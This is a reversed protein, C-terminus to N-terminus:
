GNKCIVENEFPRLGPLENTPRLAERLHIALKRGLATPDEGNVVNDPVAGLGDGVDADRISKAMITRHREERQAVLLDATDDLIPGLRKCRWGVAAVQHLAHRSNTWGECPPILLLDIAAYRIASCMM